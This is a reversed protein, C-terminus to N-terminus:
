GLLRVLEGRRPAPVLRWAQFAEHAAEIAQAADAPSVTKLSAIKEGTVPTHVALDGGAALAEGEVGLRALLEATERAIAMQNTGEDIECAAPGFRRRAAARRRQRSTHGTPSNQLARISRPGCGGRCGSRGIRHQLGNRRDSRGARRPASLM